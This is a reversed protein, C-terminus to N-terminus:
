KVKHAELVMEANRAAGVLPKTETGYNGGREIVYFSDVYDDDNTTASQPMAEIIKAGIKSVGAILVAAPAGPSVLTSVDGVANALTAGLNKFDTNGDSEYFQVNVYNTGYNTWNILDQGPTYWTKDRDLWNMDKTIVQAKGDPGVGSVIAYIEADGQIDPEKDDALRIAKLLTLDEAGSKSLAGPAMSRQLGKTRLTENVVAMGAQVAAPSDSEVVLMPIDPVADVAYRHERGNTDYALVQEEGTAPDRGIAATWVDRLSAPTVSADLGHLRLGLLSGIRGDLGRLRIAERDLDRLEDTMDVRAMTDADQAYERLADALSVRGKTMHERLAADFTPDNIMMAVQRAADERVDGVSRTEGAMAPSSLALALAAGIVTTKLNRKM